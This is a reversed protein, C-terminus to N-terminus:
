TEPTETPEKRRRIVETEGNRQVITVEDDSYVATTHSEGDVNAAAALNVRRQHAAERIAAGVRDRILRGLDDTMSGLDDTM